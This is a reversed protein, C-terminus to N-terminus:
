LLDRLEAPVRQRQRYRRQRERAAHQDVLRRVEPDTHDVRPAHKFNGRNPATNRPKPAPNTVPRHAVPRNPAWTLHAPNICTRNRCTWEAVDTDETKQQFQHLVIRHPRESHHNRTIAHPYGQANTDLITWCTDADGLRARALAALYPDSHSMNATIAHQECLVRTPSASPATCGPAQCIIPDM